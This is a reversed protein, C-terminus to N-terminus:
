RAFVIQKGAIELQVHNPSTFSLQVDFLALLLISGAILTVDASKSIGLRIKTM